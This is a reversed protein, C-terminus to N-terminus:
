RKFEIWDLNMLGSKGPNVFVLVVAHRGMAPQLNATIEQWHDWDGTTPIELSGLLQGDPSDLRVEIGGGQAASSARATIKRIGEMNLNTFRVSHGHAVSGLAKKGSAGKGGVPKPGSAQGEEAEIRPSRLQISSKGPLAGAAGAGADTYVAELLLGGPKAERPANLKGTLGRALTPGGKGKELALVWRLMIAVEDESHQPHGLMPIPSWVGGGGNRVKLNLTDPAKPQSRYRDAIALFSPGILPADVAHCNFCDSQRMLSLGPDAAEAKGATQLVTSTVVTRFGFVDADASSSGDEPDWVATSYAIEESPFFFDGDAPQTFWVAPTSNGAVFPISTSSSGGQSDTVTLEVSFNGPQSLTTDLREGTGLPAGSPQLKWTFSLAGGEPDRSGEASLVTKLPVPGATATSSAKPVPMLNGRLYSIKLLGSDANIGWTEGYDLIYLCGDPGFTADVPRKLVTAGGDLAPQHKRLQDESNATVITSAAFPEIGALGCQKDLRAWKIFPRQWDWFLLCRDFHKPFGNTQDFEPKWHFVPGACATRGGEGLEPWQESTTYPWYIFAPTAPPLERIGTNNRSENVPHQPDFLAGVQETAFDYRAYPFNNGVFYPWGFYGAKRAQNIEDYGKSGRPGNERADPGVEGWYVYGTEQDISLRWPNRCGMAYIEPRTKPTGPPFLNGPPIEYTGNPLPRIRNVKGSLNNSNGPARQGDWPERGPREDIPAYGKSDGFPNTNDGASWYLNGDPGFEVSGGHHCCEKRQEEYSLLVKESALDLLDGNLTFRSLRQGDFGVPSYLCYIWRNESFRPDLAFGLFGNEQAKFVELTGAVTSLKTKPDYIKLAGGYENFFIRGDPAVELEMPQPLNGLLRDVKFRIDEPGADNAQNDAAITKSIACVAAFAIGSCLSSLPARTSM